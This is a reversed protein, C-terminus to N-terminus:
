DLDEVREEKSFHCGYTSFRPFRLVSRSSDGIIVLLKRAQSTAVNVCRSDKLIGVENRQNSRTMSVLVIDRELGILSDITEVSVGLKKYCLVGGKEYLRQQLYEVQSRYPATTFVENRLDDDSCLEILFHLVWEVEEM